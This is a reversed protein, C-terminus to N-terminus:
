DEVGAHPVLGAFQVVDTRDEKRRRIHAVVGSPRNQGVVPLELDLLPPNQGFRGALPAHGTQVPQHGLKETVLQSQGPQRIKGIPQGPHPAPAQHVHPGIRQTKHQLVAQHRDDAKHWGVRHGPGFRPEPPDFRQHDLSVSRHRQQGRIPVPVQGLCHAHRDVPLLVKQQFVPLLAAIAAQWVSGLRQQQIGFIQHPDPGLLDAKGVSVSRAGPQLHLFVVGKDGARTQQDPVHVVPHDPLLDAGPRDVVIRGM